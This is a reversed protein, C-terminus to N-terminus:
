RSEPPFATSLVADLQPILFGYNGKVKHHHQSHRVSAALLKGVPRDEWLAYNLHGLCNMALSVVPYVLVAIISLDHLLLATIMVSGLLAAEVPHFAYTSWPTPVVARHHVKHVHRFLWRTHLLRHCAYFHLENWVVLFLVDLAGRLPAFSWVIRVWGRADMWITLAGYVGFLLISVLSSAVERRVQHKALPRPDIVRGLGRAPLVSRTLWVSLGGLGFYIAVFGLSAVAFIALPPAQHALTQLTTALTM